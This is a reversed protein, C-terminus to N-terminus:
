PRAARQPVRVIRFNEGTAVTTLGAPAPFPLAAEDYIFIYDYNRITEPRFHIEADFVARVKMKELMHPLVIHHPTRAVIKLYADTFRVSQGANIPYAYLHPVFAERYLIALTPLEFFPVDPLSRPGPNAIVSMLRAGQPLQRLAAIAPAYVRDAERWHATVIAMKVAVLVAITATAAAALKRAPATWSTCAILLMALGISIRKDAAYSSFIQEPMVIGAALVFIFSLAFPGYFVLRRLALGVLVIVAVILLTAIDFPLNYAYTTIFISEVKRALSGWSIRAAHPATPSVVVFTLVPLVFQVASAALTGAYQRLSARARLLRLLEFGAIMLAYIGLAFLHAFYIAMAMASSAVIRLWLARERLAVWLALGYIMLGLGLMFNIFGWLFLRNYLFVFIANPWLSWSGFLVRHLVNAGSAILFFSIIICLKGAAEISMLHSLGLALLDMALNPQALIMPAYYSRLLESDQARALIFIRALHNPYDALPLVSTAVVPYSVVALLFLLVALSLAPTRSNSPSAQSPLM